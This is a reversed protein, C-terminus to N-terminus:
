NLCIKEDGKLSFVNEITGVGHNNSLIIARELIENKLLDGFVKRRYLDEVSFGHITTVINVGSNFAMMLADIDGKTGIEDCILVEPSLSRIAMILGERKLCNDLVDTRIGLDSQPIGLHCAGIESREDVVVVKRGKTGLAPIGNSINRAIDRLITTKGCKPPSIIITNYIRNESTIFNIIKDSCGIIERCIRINLSSINRITKVEGKEMVCEGAIGIRHGGKITIFGQRIDEEYAYLSYNSIKQLISKLDDKSPTYNIVSEGYKSYILIPKQSKIRIEYIQEKHLREELINGIKNPFIGIIEEQGKM